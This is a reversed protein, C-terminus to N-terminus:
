QPAAAPPTNAKALLQLIRDREASASAENAIDSISRKQGDIAKANAGKALLYEVVDARNLAVAHALPTMGANDITELKAGAEVLMKVIALNGAHSATALATFGQTKNPYDLTAKHTIFGEIAEVQGNEAALVIAPTGEQNMINPVAGHALLVPVAKGKGDRIAWLLAFEKELKVGKSLLVELTEPYGSYVCMEALTYGEPTKQDASAGREILITVVKAMNHRVARAIPSIGAVGTQSTDVGMNILKLTIDEFGSDIAHYFLTENNENLAKVDPNRAILLKAVASSKRDLATFLLSPPLTDIQSTKDLLYAFFDADITEAELAAVLLSKVGLSARDTTKDILLRALKPHGHVIAISIPTKGAKSIDNIKAGAEILMVAISEDGSEAALMLPTVGITDPKVANAHAGLLLKVLTSSQKIIAYTLAKNGKTDEMEVTAFPKESKEDAVLLKTVLAEHQKTVAMILPTIGTNNAISIDSGRTILTDVVSENTQEVAKLLATNGDKDQLNLVMAASADKPLTTLLLQFIGINSTMIAASLASVGDNNQTGAHAGISLFMQVNDIHGAMVESIFSDNSITINKGALVETAKNVGRFENATSTASFSLTLLFICSASLLPSRFM